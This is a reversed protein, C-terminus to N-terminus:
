WQQLTLLATCRIGEGRGFATLGEGTHASLYIQDSKIQLIKELSSKIDTVLTDIRPRTCELSLSVRSIKIGELFPKLYATSNKEGAECLVDATDSFSRNKAQALARGMAHLIVDGDSNAEMAPLGPIGIGGLKLMGTTGFRHSDEGLYYHSSNHMTRLSEIDEAYTIKRNAPSAEVVQVPVTSLLASTLDTTENLDMSKLVDGRVAQPTQMMRMNERSVVANYRGDEATLLTDLAPLSVAGAGHQRAAEIVESIERTTVSPNAANHDLVIDEEKPELVALANKFSQMRTEGGAVIQTQEDVFAQFQKEEGAPVVLLIRDIKSHSHFAEYSLMWLPKGHIDAWLKNQGARQSKGAALLIAINM